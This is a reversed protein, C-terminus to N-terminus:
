NVYDCVARGGKIQKALVVTGVNLQAYKIEEVGRLQRCRRCKSTRTLGKKIGRLGGTEKLQLSYPGLFGACM